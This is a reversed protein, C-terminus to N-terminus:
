PGNSGKSNLAQTASTGAQQDGGPALRALFDDLPTDALRNLTNTLTCHAIEGVVEVMQRRDIGAAAFEAIEDDRLRGKTQVLRVVLRQLAAERADPLPRGALMDAIEADSFGAERALLTHAPVCYHCGNVYAMVLDIVERDRRALSTRQLGKWFAHFAELLPPSTAMVRAVNWPGGWTKAIAALAARAAADETTTEDVPPIRGTM